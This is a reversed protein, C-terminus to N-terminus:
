AQPIPYKAFIAEAAKFAKDTAQEPSMGGNVVDAWAVNFVHKTRVEAFAPNYVYYFPVTPSLLGQRIYTSRHPDKPDLWWPDNKVLEPMSPVLRGLRGKLYENNIKPEIMYKTFEKAVAVNSAGKPIFVTAAGFQSPLEKGNNDLPLSHTIIEHYYVQPDHILALETSITGDFDVVCLKSHFANNDDADNWNVVGPPVQGDKYDKTLRTLAKIVAEKVQPNDVHLKGDPTVLDKGGYAIMFANFTNIPDVGITSVEWGYSYTHRMGQERLKAQIPRFFDIFADWKNPIDSVKYGAKEVLSGWIHFPVVAGAYPVAYYSRRKEVPNYCYASALSTPHFHAKQTDIVDTVDVLQDKWASEPVIEAPTANILDPVVGSTLASVIKQRLPAFPVISLAITNNSAKEYDAVLKRLAADEEKVFGQSWWVTATQAAANALYPRALAGAAIVSMSARLVSRRSLTEM